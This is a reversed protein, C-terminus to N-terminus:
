ADDHKTQETMKPGHAFLLYSPTYGTLMVKASIHVFIIALVAFGVFFYDFGEHYLAIGTLILSFLSPLFLLVALLRYPWRVKALDSIPPQTFYM